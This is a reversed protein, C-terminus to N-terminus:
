VCCHQMSINHANARANVYVDCLIIIQALYKLYM